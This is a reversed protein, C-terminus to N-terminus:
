GIGRLARWQDDRIMTFTYYSAGIVNTERVTEIFGRTEQVSAADAIGGIVHIPMNLGATEQRLILINKATYWAADERGSGRWTFYTMPLFVDYLTALDRYPFSPWYGPDTRQRRPSPVIAGLRYGPGVVRRIRDSLALLRRTRAEERRVEPSEIDLAFSDFRNGALTTLRIAALARKRDTRVDRFGPLYWAVVRVGSTAAADLFRVVGEPHVFPRGRSFNSTQLYVTRVGHARMSRITREPHAWARADYIDIWTGLGRYPDDEPLMPVSLPSPPEAVEVVSSRAASSAGLGEAPAECAAAVVVLLLGLSISRPDWGRVCGGASRNAPNLSTM